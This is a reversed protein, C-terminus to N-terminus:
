LLAAWVKAAEMGKEGANSNRHKPVAKEEREWGLQRHFPRMGFAERIVSNTGRGTSMTQCMTSPNSASIRALNMATAM